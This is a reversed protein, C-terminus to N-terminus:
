LLSSIDVRVMDWQDHFPPILNNRLVPRLLERVHNDNLGQSGQSKRCKKCTKWFIRWCGHPAGPDVWYVHSELSGRVKMCPLWFPSAHSWHWDWQDSPYQFRSHQWQCSWQLSMCDYLQVSFSFTQCTYLDQFYMPNRFSPSEIHFSPVHTEPYSEVAMRSHFIVVADMWSLVTTMFLISETRSWSYM